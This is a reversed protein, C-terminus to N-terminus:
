NTPTPNHTGWWSFSTADSNLLETNSGHIWWNTIGQPGDVAMAIHRGSSDIAYGVIPHSSRVLDHGRGLADALLYWGDPRHEVVALGGAVRSPLTWTTEPPNLVAAATLDVARRTQGFGRFLGADLDIARITIDDGEVVALVLRYDDLGHTGIVTIDTVAWEAPVTWRAHATSTCCLRLSIEQDLTPQEPELVFLANGLEGALRAPGRDVADALDTPRFGMFVTGGAVWAFSASGSGKITTAEEGLSLQSFPGGGGGTGTTDNTILWGPPPPFGVEPGFPCLTPSERCIDGPEAIREVVGALGEMEWSAALGGQQLVAAWSDGSVVWRSLGGLTAVIDPIAEPSADIAVMSANSDIGWNLAVVEVRSSGDLSRVEVVVPLRAVSAADVPSGRYGFLELLPWRHTIGGLDRALAEVVLPRAVTVSPVVSPLSSGTAAIETDEVSTPPSLELPGRGSVSGSCAVLVMSCTAIVATWGVRM